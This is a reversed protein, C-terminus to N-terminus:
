RHKQSFKGHNLTPKYHINQYLKKHPFNRKVAKKFKKPIKVYIYDFIPPEVPINFIIHDSFSIPGLAGARPQATLLKGQLTKPLEIPVSRNRFNSKDLLCCEYWQKSILKITRFEKLPIFSLIHVIIENPLQDM